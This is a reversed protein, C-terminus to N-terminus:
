SDFWWRSAARGGDMSWSEALQGIHKVNKRRGSVFNPFYPLITGGDDRLLM